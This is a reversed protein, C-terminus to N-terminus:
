YKAVDQFGRPVAVVVTALPPLRLVMSYGFGHRAVSEAGRGNRANGVNGGGFLESDTSLIERYEGAVPVGVRYGHRVV